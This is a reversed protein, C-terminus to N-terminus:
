MDNRGERSTLPEDQSLEFPSFFGVLDYRDRLKEVRQRDLARDHGNIGHPTLSVDRLLDDVLLSVIDQRQFAVLARQTLIDIDEDGLLFGNAELVAFDALMSRDIGIVVADLGSDGSYDVIDSPQLITMAPRAHFGDDHDFATALDASFDLLLCSKIECRQHHQRMEDSRGHAAVPC